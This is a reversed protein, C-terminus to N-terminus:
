PKFLSKIYLFINPSKEINEIKKLKINYKRNKDLYVTFIKPNYDKKSVKLIYKSKKLRIGAKYVEKINTIQVRANSPTPIVTLSYKTTSDKRKKQQIKKQKEAQHSMLLANHYYKGSKGAKEFYINIYKLAKSYEKLTFYNKAYQFYFDNPVEIDLEIIKQFYDNASQYNKNDISIKAGILYKDALISKPLAYLIIPLIILLELLLIKKMKTRIFSSEEITHM